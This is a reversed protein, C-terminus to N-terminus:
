VGSVTILNVTYNLANPKDASFNCSIKNFLVAISGAHISRTPSTFIADQFWTTGTAQAFKELLKFNIYNIYDNNSYNILGKLTLGPNDVGLWDGLAAPIGSKQPTQPVNTFIELDWNYDTVRMDIWKPSEETGSVQPNFLFVSGAPM